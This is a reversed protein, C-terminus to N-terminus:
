YVEYVLEGDSYVYPINCYEKMIYVINWTYKLSEIAISLSADILYLYCLIKFGNSLPSEIEVGLIKTIIETSKKMGFKCIIIGIGASIITPLVMVITEKPHQTATEVVVKIEDVKDRVYKIIKKGITKFKTLLKKMNFGKMQQKYYYKKVYVNLNEKM